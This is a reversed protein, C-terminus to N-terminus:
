KLTLKYGWDIKLQPAHNRTVRFLVSSNLLIFIGWPICQSCLMGWRYAVTKKVWTQEAAAQSLYGKPAWWWLQLPVTVNYYNWASSNSPWKISWDFFCWFEENWLFTNENTVGMKTQSVAGKGGFTYNFSYLLLVIHVFVWRSETRGSLALGQMVQLVQILHESVVVFHLGQLGKWKSDLQEQSILSASNLSFMSCNFYVGLILFSFGPPGMASCTNTCMLLVKFRGNNGFPTRPASVCWVHGISLGDKWSVNEQRLKM